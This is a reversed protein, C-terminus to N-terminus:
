CAYKDLTAADLVDLLFGYTDHEIITLGAQEVQEAFRAREFIHIHNPKTYYNDPAIPKQVHEGLADPVSLLYLAGPQGIRELEKLTELPYDVHEIVEM